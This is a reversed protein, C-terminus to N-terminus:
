ESVGKEIVCFKITKSLPKCEMIRVKDGVAGGGICSPLHASYRHTRKQYREYKPMYRTTERELVVSGTMGEASVIKGEIIQGRVRLTGYFPCNENGDWEGAPTSVDIGIDRINGM